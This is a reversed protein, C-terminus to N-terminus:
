LKYRVTNWLATLQHEKHVLVCSEYACVFSLWVWFYPKYVNNFLPIRSSPRRYHNKSISHIRNRGINSLSVTKITTADDYACNLIQSSDLQMGPTWSFHAVTILSNKPQGWVTQCTFSSAIWCRIEFIAHQMVTNALLFNEGFISYM